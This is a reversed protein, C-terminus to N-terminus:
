EITANEAPAADPPDAEKADLRELILDIAAYVKALKKEEVKGFAVHLNEGSDSVVVINARGKEAKMSASVSGDWDCLVTDKSIARIGVRAPARGLEPIFSLNAISWFEIRDGYKEKITDTWIPADKAGGPDAISFVLPKDRPFDFAHSKEHQDELTFPPVKQPESTDEAFAALSLFAIAFAFLKVQSHKM